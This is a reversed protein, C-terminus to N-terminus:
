YDFVNCHNAHIRRKRCAGIADHNIIGIAIRDLILATDTYQTNM